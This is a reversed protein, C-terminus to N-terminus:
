NMHKQTTVGRRFYRIAFVAAILGLALYVPFEGGTQPNKTPTTTSQIPSSPTPTAPKVPVGSAPTAPTVSVATPNVAPATTATTGPKPGLSPGATTFWDSPKDTDKGLSARFFTQNATADRPTIGLNWLMGKFAEYNKWSSSPTGWNLCDFALGNQDKIGLMDNAGDLGNQPWGTLGSAKFKSTTFPEITTTPLGICASSTCVSWGTLTIPSKTENYLNFWEESPNVTNNVDTIEVTTTAARVPSMPLLSFMGALLVLGLALSIRLSRM